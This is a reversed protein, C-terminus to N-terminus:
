LYYKILKNNSYVIKKILEKDLKKSIFEIEGFRLPIAIKILHGLTKKDKILIENINNLKINKILSLYKKPFFQIFVNIINEFMKKSIKNEFILLEICIGISIALGHPIRYDLLSEYAHGISHGFNMSRRIDKEYEDFEVITKKIILSRYIMKKVVSKKKTIINEIDNSFIKFTKPGGTIHLRFAEGIGSVYDTNSLTELFNLSIVVKKPASFLGYLNKTNKYNLAVKGGVCSDTMGLLTTPVFIWPIGRKYVCCSYGVIDQIIGGGIAYVQSLKTVKKKIFFDIIKNSIEINKINESSEIIYINKNKFKKFYHNYIKKDIIFLNKDNSISKKIIGLANNSINVYYDRLGSKIRFTNKYKLSDIKLNNNNIKFNIISNVM